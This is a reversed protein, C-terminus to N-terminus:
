RLAGASSAFRSAYRRNSKSTVLLGDAGSRKLAERIRELRTM